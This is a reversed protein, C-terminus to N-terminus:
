PMTYEIVVNISYNENNTNVDAGNQDLLKVRTSSLKKGILNSADLRMKIQPQFTQQHGVQTTILIRCIYFDYKNNLRIGNDVLNCSILVYQLTNFAAINPATDFTNAVSVGATPYLASDFGILERFTQSGTFDVRVGAYNYEILVRQQADSGLLGILPSTEPFLAYNFQAVEIADDLDSISYLGQPIVINMTFLPNIGDDYTITILDNEGTIINPFSYMMEADQVYMTCSTASDPIEVNEDDLFITFESGNATKNAAGNTTDSSLLISIPIPM